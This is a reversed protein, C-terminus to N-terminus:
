QTGYRRALWKMSEPAPPLLIRGATASRKSPERFDGIRTKDIALHNGLEDAPWRM